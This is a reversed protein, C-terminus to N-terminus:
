LGVMRFAAWNARYGGATHGPAFSKVERLKQKRRQLIIFTGAEWPTTHISPQSLPSIQPGLFPGMAQLPENQNHGDTVTFGLPPSPCLGM